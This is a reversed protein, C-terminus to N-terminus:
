RWAFAGRAAPAVLAAPTTKRLGSEGHWRAVSTTWRQRRHYECLLYHAGDAARVERAGDRDCRRNELKYYAECRVM